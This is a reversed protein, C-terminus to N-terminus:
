LDNGYLRAINVKRDFFNEMHVSLYAGIM